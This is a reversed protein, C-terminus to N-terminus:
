KYSRFSRCPITKEIAIQFKGRDTEKIKKAAKLEGLKKIVQNRGHSDVIGMKATIQKYNYSKNTNEKLVKFINQTLNKIIRGKKKYIKKKRSM